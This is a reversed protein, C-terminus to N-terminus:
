IIISGLFVFLYAFNDPRPDEKPCGPGLLKYPSGRGGGEESIRGDALKYFLFKFTDKPPGSSVRRETCGENKIKLIYHYLDLCRSMGTVVAICAQM